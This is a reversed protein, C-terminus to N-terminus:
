VRIGVRAGTHVDKNEINFKWLDARNFDRNWGLWPIGDSSVLFTGLEYAVNGKGQWDNTIQNKEELCTIAYILDVEPTLGEEGKYDKDTHLMELYKRPSKDTEIQKRHGIKEGNGPSPINPMNEVLFIQWANVPDALLETKTKGQHYLRDYREPFYVLNNKVDGFKCEDWTNLPHTLDLSLREDPDTDKNKTALLSDSKYHNVITEEYKKALLEISCAFPVILVKNFGQQIKKEVLNKKTELRQYIEDVTPVNYKKNDIGTIGLTKGDLMVELIGVKSLINIQREVQEKLKLNNIQFIFAQNERYESKKRWFFM